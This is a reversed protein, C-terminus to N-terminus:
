QAETDGKRRYAVVEAQEEPTMSGKNILYNHREKAQAARAQENLTRMIDRMVGERDPLLSPYEWVALRALIGRHPSDAFREVIAGATLGPMERLLAVLAMLVEVGPRDPPPLDGVEQILAPYQLLLAVAQRVLTGGRVPAPPSPRPAAEEARAPALVAAQPAKLASLEALRGIMLEYLAGRALKSLLPKALEVLRARGDMRSVDARACLTDFFFEPLETATRLRAQFGELGEARILTDPDEGEPLFLFSAQRGDRLVTLAQELARWAAERGARDGDFCFVVEPAYRFLRDLHERTTATGLTAVAHGVGFQSLALVDMYGEVVVVQGAKEIAALAQPLGYLERGKHFLVTEPSNMYKPEGHDLVRGGFGIIRGRADSIPFMVRDRFRDYFGAAGDRAIALGARELVAPTFDKALAGLLGNWGPPAYGLQYAKAVAGTIGRGKLYARAREAVPHHRLADQYYRAAAALVPRLDPGAPAAPRDDQPMELGARQALETVAEVFGLREYAMLFGIASGHAGCGFCHYFQKDPSVTFSPTREEHFPCCAKYDRGAKRLPVRGGVLEVIDTRALVADIFSSPIKSAM